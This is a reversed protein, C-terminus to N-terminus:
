ASSGTRVRLEQLGRTLFVPQWTLPAGTLQLEPLGNLLIPLATAAELRALSAGLCYHFGHGFAIHPNPDRDLVLQEPEDFVRPDHNAAALVLFVRQGERMRQGELEVDEALVRVVAKGPGDYRLLEEVAVSPAVRGERLAALQDPHRLLALTASAMLNATTEHGAFLLLTCTAVIEAESLRAEDERARILGTMLNDAPHETYHRVLGFCYRALENMGQAAREHRQPDGFSASVIAAVHESWGRFRDRDEPPVGLMEAIVIAPLPYTFEHLLDVDDGRPLAALLEKSLTAIHEQMIKVARPTFAKHILGRLRTHTPADNFVLWNRLVEFASRVQPDAEEGSLKHDIFPAIRDSSFRKDKLAATILEHRTVIWSRQRAGWVVPASERLAGFYSYPDRIAEPSVIDIEDQAIASV